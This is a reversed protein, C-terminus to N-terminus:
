KKPPTQTEATGFTVEVTEGPKFKAAEATPVNFSVGSPPVDSPPINGGPELQGNVTAYKPMLMVNNIQLKM